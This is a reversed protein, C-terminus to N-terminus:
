ARVPNVEFTAGTSFLSSKDMTLLVSIEPERGEYPACWLKVNVYTDDTVHGSGSNRLLRADREVYRAVDDAGFPGDAASYRVAITGHGKTQFEVRVNIVDKVRCREFGHRIRDQIVQHLSQHLSFGITVRRLERDIPYKGAKAVLQKPPQPLAFASRSTAAYAVTALVLRLVDRRIM